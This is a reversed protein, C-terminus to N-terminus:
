ILLKYLVGPGLWFWPQNGPASIIVNIIDALFKFDIFKLNIKRCM